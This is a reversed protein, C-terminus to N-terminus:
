FLTTCIIALASFGALSLLFRKLPLRPEPMKAAELIMMQSNALLALICLASLAMGLAHRGSDPARSLSVGTFAFIAACFVQVGVVLWVAPRPGFSTPKGDFWFHVPVRDPLNKYESATIWATAAMIALGAAAIVGYIAV